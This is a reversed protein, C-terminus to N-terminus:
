PSARRQMEGDYVDLAFRLRRLEATARLVKKWSKLCVAEELSGVVDSIRDAIRGPTPAGPQDLEVAEFGFEDFAAQRQERGIMACGM